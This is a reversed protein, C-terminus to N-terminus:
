VVFCLGKCIGGMTMCDRFIGYGSSRMFQAVKNEGWMSIM